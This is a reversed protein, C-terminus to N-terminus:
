DEYFGQHPTDEYRLQRVTMGNVKGLDDKFLCFIEGSNIKKNYSDAWARM